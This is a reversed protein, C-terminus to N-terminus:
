SRGRGNSATDLLKRMLAMLQKVEAATLSSAFEKESERVADVMSKLAEKGAETILLMHKRRDIRSRKKSIWRAAHLKDVVAMTTARDMDLIDGLEVQSLGPNADILVLMAFQTPTAEPDVVHKHFLRFNALQARRIYFGLLEDLVGLSPGSVEDAIERSAQGALSAM